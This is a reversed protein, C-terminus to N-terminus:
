ADVAEMVERLAQDFPAPGGSANAASLDGLWWSWDGDDGPRHSLTAHVRGDRVLDLQTASSWTWDRMLERREREGKVLMSQWAPLEDTDIADIDASTFDRLRHSLWVRDLHYAYEDQVVKRSSGSESWSCSCTGTSTSESGHEGSWRVTLTHGPVRVGRSRQPLSATM